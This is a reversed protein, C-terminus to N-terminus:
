FLIYRIIDNNANSAPLAKKHRTVDVGDAPLDALMVALNSILLLAELQLLLEQFGDAADSIDSAQLSSSEENHCPIMKIRQRWRRCDHELHQLGDTIYLDWRQHNWSIVYM